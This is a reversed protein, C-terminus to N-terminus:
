IKVGNIENIGRLLNITSPSIKDDNNPAETLLTFGCHLTYAEKILYLEEM